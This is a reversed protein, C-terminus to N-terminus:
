RADPPFPVTEWRSLTPGVRAHRSITGVVYRSRAAEVLSFVYADKWFGDVNDTM